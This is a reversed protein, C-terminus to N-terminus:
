TQRHIAATFQPFLIAIAATSLLGELLQDILQSDATSFKWYGEM